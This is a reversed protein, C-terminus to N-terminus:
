FDAITRLRLSKECLPFRGVADLMRAHVHHEALDIVTAM